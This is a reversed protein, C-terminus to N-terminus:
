NLLIENNMIKLSNGSKSLNEKKIIDKIDPIIEDFITEDSKEIEIEKIFNAIRILKSKRISSYSIINNNQKVIYDSDNYAFLLLANIDSLIKQSEASNLKTKLLMLIYFNDFLEKDNLLRIKIENLEDISLEFIEKTLIKDLYLIKDKENFDTNILRFSEDTILQLSGKPLKKKTARSAKL